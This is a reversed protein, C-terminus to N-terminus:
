QRQHKVNEQGNELFTSFATHGRKNRELKALRSIVTCFTASRHRRHKSTELVTKATGTTNKASQAPAKLRSNVKPAALHTKFM